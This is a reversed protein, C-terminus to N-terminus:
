TVNLGTDWYPDGTVEALTVKTDLLKEKAYPCAEFKKKCSDHMEDKAAATWEPTVEQDPLIEKALKMAQFSDETM